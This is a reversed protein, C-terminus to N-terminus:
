TQFTQSFSNNTEDSEAIINDPDVQATVTISIGTCGDGGVTVNLTPLTGVGAETV